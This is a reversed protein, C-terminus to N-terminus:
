HEGEKMRTGKKQTEAFNKRAAAERRGTCSKKKKGFILTEFTRFSIPNFGNM